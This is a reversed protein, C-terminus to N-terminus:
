PNNSFLVKNRCTDILTKAYYPYIQNTSSKNLPQKSKMKSASFSILVAEYFISGVEQCCEGTLIAAIDRHCLMQVALPLM